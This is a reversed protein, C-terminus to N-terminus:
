EHSNARPSAAERCRAQHPGSGPHRSEAGGTFWDTRGDAPARIASGRVWLYPAAGISKGAALPHVDSRASAPLIGANGPVSDWTM